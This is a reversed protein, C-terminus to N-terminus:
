RPQVPEATYGDSEPANEVVEKRLKFSLKGSLAPFIRIAEEIDLQIVEESVLPISATEFANASVERSNLREKKMINANPIGITSGFANMLGRMTELIDLGLYMGATNQSLMQVKLNGEDDFLKKDAFSAPLGSAIDDYLRKFSESITKSDCMFVYALRSNILNSNLSGAATALQGAYYCVTDMVSGYDPRLKIVACDKGIELSSYKPNTLLPNNISIYKPQYFVDYGSLTCPNFILGFEDTDVIAGYGRAYLMYLVFPLPWDDPVTLEAPAMAMQLLTRIFYRYTLSDKGIVSPFFSSASLNKVGYNEAYDAWGPLGPIVSSEMSFDSPM